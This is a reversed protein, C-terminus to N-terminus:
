LKKAPIVKENSDQKKAYLFGSSKLKWRPKEADPIRQFEDFTM